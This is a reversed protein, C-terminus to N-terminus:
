PFRPLKGRLYPRWRLELMLWDLYYFWVLRESIQVETLIRYQWNSKFKAVSIRCKLQIYGGQGKQIPQIIGDQHQLVNYSEWNNNIHPEICCSTALEHLSMVIWPSINPGWHVIFHLSWAGLHLYGGLNQGWSERHITRNIPSLQYLPILNICYHHLYYEYSMQQGGVLCANSLSKAEDKMVMCPINFAECTAPM